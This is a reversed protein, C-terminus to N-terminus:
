QSAETTPLTIAAPTTTPPDIPTAPEVATPTFDVGFLADYDPLARLEVLHGDPHQRAGSTTGPAASRSSHSSNHRDQALNRRLQRAQTVHAPDTIVAQRAWSRRHQAVVQGQCFVVVTTPSATVEVFRGIVRPDV